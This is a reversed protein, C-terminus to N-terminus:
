RPVTINPKLGAAISRQVELQTKLIRNTEKAISEVTSRGSGLFNGVSLLSDSEPKFRSANPGGGGSPPMLPSPGPPQYNLIKQIMEEMGLIQAAFLNDATDKMAQDPLLGKLAEKRGGKNEFGAQLVKMLNGVTVNATLAGTKAGFGKIAAFSRLLLVGASLIAPAFQGMLIQSVISLQDNLAALSRITAGDMVAGFKNAAESAAGLDAQLMNMMPGIQKISLGLGQLISQIEPGSKGATKSQVSAFLSEATMGNPDIGLAQFAKLNKMDQAADTLREIFTILKQADAGNQKAAFSWEQLAKTSIGVRQSMEELSDAYSMTKSIAGAIAGVTFAAALKSKLGDTLAGMRLIGAQFGSGDMTSKVRLEAV